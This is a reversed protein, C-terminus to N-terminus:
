SKYLKTKKKLKIWSESFMNNAHKAALFEFAPNDSPLKSDIEFFVCKDGDQFEGKKAILTWANVHVLEINDAGEIPTIDHVTQIYALARKDNIIM